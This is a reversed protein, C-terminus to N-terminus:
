VDIRKILHQKSVYVFGRFYIMIFALWSVLGTSHVGLCKCKCECIQNWLTVLSRNCMTRNHFTSIIIKECQIWGLSVFRFRFHSSVFDM